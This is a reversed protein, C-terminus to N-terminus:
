SQEESSYIRLQAINSQPPQQLMFLVANAVDGSQLPTIQAEWTLEGSAKATDLIETETSGPAVTGVKVGTGALEIRLSATFSELGAKVAGYVGGMPITMYAGISSVNIIAGSKNSKFHRAFTYSLRIVAELNVSIVKSVVDFDVAELPRVSLLGANNILIDAGGFQEDALALLQDATTSAAVDAALIVSETELEQQLAQLRDERRATLVLRCGARSLTRALEAGIGSSAGTIVAVKNNLEM